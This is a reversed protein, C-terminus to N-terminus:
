IQCGAGILFGGVFSSTVSVNKQAYTKARDRLTDVKIKQELAKAKNRADEWTMKTLGSTQAAQYLIIGSGAFFIVSRGVQMTFYGTAFGAASGLAMQQVKHKNVSAITQLAGKVNKM